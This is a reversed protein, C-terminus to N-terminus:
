IYNKLDFLVRPGNDNKNEPNVEAQVRRKHTRANWKKPGPRLAPVHSIAQPVGGAPLCKEQVELLEKWKSYRDLGLSDLGRCRSGRKLDDMRLEVTNGYNGPDNALDELKRCALYIDEPLKWDHARLWASARCDDPRYIKLLSPSGIFLLHRGKLWEPTKRPTHGHCGLWVIDPMRGEAKWWAEMVLLAMWFNDCLYAADRGENNLWARFRSQTSKPRHGSRELWVPAHKNDRNVVQEVVVEKTETRAKILLVGDKIAMHGMLLDVPFGDGIFVNKRLTVAIDPRFELWREKDFLTGWPSLGEGQWGCAQCVFSGPKNRVPTVTYEDNCVPCKMFLM